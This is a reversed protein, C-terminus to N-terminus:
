LLTRGKPLRTAWIFKLGEVISWGIRLSLANLAHSLEKYEEFEEDSLEAFRVHYDYRCLVTGVAKEFPFKYVVGGFYNHIAATGEINFPHTLTATLGLRCGYAQQMANQFFPAGLRHVEDAIFLLSRPPPSADQLITQFQESALSHYTGILVILRSAESEGIDQLLCLRNFAQDQWTAHGGFIALPPAFGGEERVERQWQSLLPDTPVGIIVARLGYTRKAATLAVRTKGTGTAMDLVGCRGAKEWAIIAEEQYSRLPPRAPTRFGLDQSYPRGPIRYRQIRSHIAEPLTYVRLNPERGNWLREFRVVDAEVMPATSETWSCFVKLSEYNRTGQVSDNYSGNFSVRKGYADTFIGFKDHFEGDLSDTPIAFRFELLGDAVMWALISLTDATLGIEIEDLSRHLAQCLTSNNAAEVGKRLARWEEESLIPSTVWRARGGNRVLGALGIADIRLWGASFFGVGRDYSVSRLLFPQFFDRVLDATSTTIIPLIRLETFPSPKGQRTLHPGRPSSNEEIATAEAM